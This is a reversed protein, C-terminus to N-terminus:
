DDQNEKCWAYLKDLVKGVGAYFLGLNRKEVGRYAERYGECCEHSPGEYLACGECLDDHPEKTFCQFRCLPCNGVDPIDDGLEGDRVAIAADPALFEEYKSITWGVVDKLTVVVLADMLEDLDQRNM